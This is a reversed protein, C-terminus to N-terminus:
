ESVVPFVLLFIGCAYVRKPDVNYQSVALDVARDAYVCDLYRKIHHKKVLTVLWLYRTELWSTTQRNCNADLTRIRWYYGCIPTPCFTTALRGTRFEMIGSRFSGQFCHSLSGCMVNCRMQAMFCFYLLYLPKMPTERKHLLLGTKSVPVHYLCMFLANLTASLYIFDLLQCCTNTFFGSPCRINETCLLWPQTQLGVPQNVSTQRELPCCNCCKFKLVLLRGHVCAIKTLLVLM